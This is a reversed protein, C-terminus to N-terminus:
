VGLLCFLACCALLCVFLAFCVFCLLCVAIRCGTLSKGFRGPRSKRRSDNRRAQKARLAAQHERNFRHSHVQLPPPLRIGDRLLYQCDCQNTKRIGSSDTCGVTDLAGAFNLIADFSKVRFGLPARIQSLCDPACRRHM